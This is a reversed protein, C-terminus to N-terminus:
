TAKVIGVFPFLDIFRINVKSRSTRATETIGARASPGTQPVVLLGLRVQEAGTGGAKVGESDRSSTASATRANM